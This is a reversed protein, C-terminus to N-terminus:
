AAPPVHHNGRFVDEPDYAAKVERLRAWTAADFFMSADTPVEVFNPYEGAHHAATAAEIDAIAARVPEDFAPEPVVGLAFLSVEGPLTARAGAGPSVRGLAGGMHRLQLMTLVPGRGSEPGVADLMRDIAEPSLRDLLQHGTHLPLPDYPDMALDGLVVPPVTALTDRV